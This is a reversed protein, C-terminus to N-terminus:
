IRTEMARLHETYHRGRLHHLERHVTKLRGHANDARESRAQDKAAKARAAQGAATHKPVYTKGSKERTMTKNIDADANYPKGHKGEPKPARGSHRGTYQAQKSKELDESINYDTAHAGKAHPGRYGTDPSSAAHRGQPARHKGGKFQAPNVNAAPSRTQPVNSRQPDQTKKKPNGAAVSRSPSVSSTRVKMPKSLDIGPSKREPELSSPMLPGNGSTNFSAAPKPKRAKQVPGHSVKVPGYDADMAAKYKADDASSTNKM